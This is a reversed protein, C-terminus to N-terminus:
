VHCSAAHSQDHANMLWPWIEESHEIPGHQQRSVSLHIAAYTDDGKSLSVHLNDISSGSRSCLLVKPCKTVYRRESRYMDHVVHEIDDDLCGVRCNFVHDITKGFRVDFYACM